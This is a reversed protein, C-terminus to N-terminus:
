GLGRLRKEVDSSPKNISKNTQSLPNVMMPLTKKCYEAESVMTNIQKIAQEVTNKELALVHFLLIRQGEADYGFSCQGTAIGFLHIKLLSSFFKESLTGTIKMVTSFLYVQNAHHEIALEIDPDFRITCGGTKAADKINLKTARSLAELLQAFDMLAEMLFWTLLSLLVTVIQAQQNFYLLNRKYTGM